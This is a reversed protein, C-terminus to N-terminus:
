ASAACCGVRVATNLILYNPTQPILAAADTVNEFVNGDVAFVLADPTWRVSYTHWQTADFGSGNGFYLGGPLIQKDVGCSTGWRLSATSANAFPNSLQEM